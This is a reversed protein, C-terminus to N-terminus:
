FLDSKAYEPEERIDVSDIFKLNGGSFIYVGTLGKETLKKVLGQEFMKPKFTREGSAEVILARDALRLVPINPKQFLVLYECCQRLSNGLGYCINDKSTTKVWPIITKYEFNNVSSNHCDFLVPLMSSTVWMFIYDVNIKEFIDILKLNDWLEYTLPNNTLALSKDDYSWPPDIIAFGYHINKDLFEQFDMNYYM